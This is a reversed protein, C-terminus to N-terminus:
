SPSTTSEDIAEDLLADMDVSLGAAAAAVPPAAAVTTSVTTAAATIPEAPRALPAFTPVATRFVGDDVGGRRYVHQYEHLWHGLTTMGLNIAMPGMSALHQGIQPQERVATDLFIRIMAQVIVLELHGPLANNLVVRMVEDAPQVVHCNYANRETFARGQGADLIANTLDVLLAYAWRELSEFLNTGDRQRPRLLNYLDSNEVLSQVLTRASSAAFRRRGESREGALSPSGNATAWGRIFQAAPERTRELPAWSGAVLTMLQAVDFNSMVSRSFVDLLSSPAESASDDRIGAQAALQELTARAAPAQSPTAAAAVAPTPQSTPAAASAAPTAAPQPQQPAAPRQPQAAPSSQPVVPQQPQAVHTRVETVFPAQRRLQELRAPLADLESFNVHVHVHVGQVFPQQQQQLQQQQLQQQQLQQLQRMMQQHQMHQHHQHHHHQHHPQHQQVFIQQFGQAPVQQPQPVGSGDGAPQNGGQAAGAAAAAAQAPRQQQQQQQQPNVANTAVNVIGGLFGPLASFVNAIDMQPIQIQQQFQQFQEFGQPQQQQPQQPPPPPMPSPDIQRIVMHVTSGEQITTDSILRANDLVRAMFILRIRDISIPDEGPEGQQAIHAAIATKFREITWDSQIELEFNHSPSAGRINVKM